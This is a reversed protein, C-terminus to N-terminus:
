KHQTSLNEVDGPLHRIGVQRFPVRLQLLVPRGDGADNDCVFDITLRQALISGKSLHLTIRGWNVELCGFFAEIEGALPLNTRAGGAGRATVGGHLQRKCEDACRLAGVHDLHKCFCHANSLNSFHQTAKRTCRKVCSCIYWSFGSFSKKSSTMSRMPASEFSEAATATRRV